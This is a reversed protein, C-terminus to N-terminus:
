KKPIHLGYNDIVKSVVDQKDPLRAYMFLNYFIEKIDFFLTTITIQMGFRHLLKNQIDKLEPVRIPFDEDLIRVINIRRDGACGKDKKNKFCSLKIPEGIMQLLIPKAKWVCYLCSVYDPVEDYFNNGLNRIFPLDTPKGKAFNRLSTDELRQAITTM